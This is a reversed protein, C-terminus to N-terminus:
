AEVKANNQSDHTPPRRLRLLLAHHRRHRHCNATMSISEFLTRPPQILTSPKNLEFSPTSKVLHAEGSTTSQEPTEHRSNERGENERGENEEKTKATKTTTTAHQKQSSVNPRNEGHANSARQSALQNTRSLFFSLFFSLFLTGTSFQAVLERMMWTELRIATFTQKKKNNTAVRQQQEM